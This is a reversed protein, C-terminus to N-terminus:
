AGYSKKALSTYDEKLKEIPVNGVELRSNEADKQGEIYTV